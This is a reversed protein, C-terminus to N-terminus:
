EEPLHHFLIAATFGFAFQCIRDAFAKPAESTELILQCFGSEALKAATPCPQGNIRARKFDCGRRVLVIRDAQAARNQQADIDPFM